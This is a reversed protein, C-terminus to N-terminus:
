VERLSTEQKFLSGLFNSEFLITCTSFNTNADQYETGARFLQSRGTESNQQLQIPIQVLKEEEL